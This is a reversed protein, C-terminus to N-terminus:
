IYIYINYTHAYKDGDATRECAVAGALLQHRRRRLPQPDAALRVERKYHALALNLRAILNCLVWADHSREEDM